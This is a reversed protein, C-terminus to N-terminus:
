TVDMSESSAKVLRAPHFSFHLRHIHVLRHSLQQAPLAVLLQWAVAPHCPTTMINFLTSTPLFHTGGAHSPKLPTRARSLEWIKWM